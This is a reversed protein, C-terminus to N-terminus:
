HMDGAYVNPFHHERQYMTRGIVKRGEDTVHWRRKRPIKAILGHAHVWHCSVGFLGM